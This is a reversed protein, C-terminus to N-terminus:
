RMHIPPHFGQPLNMNSFKIFRNTQINSLPVPLGRQNYAIVTWSSLGISPPQGAKKSGGGTPTNIISSLNRSKKGANMLVM